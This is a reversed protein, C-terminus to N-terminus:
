DGTGPIFFVYWAAATSLTARDESHDEANGPGSNECRPIRRNLRGRLDRGKGGGGTLLCGLVEHVRLVAHDPLSILRLPGCSSPSLHEGGFLFQEAVLFEPVRRGLLDLVQDSADVQHQASTSMRPDHNPLGGLLSRLSGLRGIGGVRVRTAVGLHEAGELRAVVLAEDQGRPCPTPTGARGHSNCTQMGILRSGLGRQIACGRV